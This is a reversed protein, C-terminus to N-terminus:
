YRIVDCPVYVLSSPIAASLSAVIVSLAQSGNNGQIKDVENKIPQYFLFFTGYSPVSGTITSGLIGRYLRHLKIKHGQAQSQVKFSDIGYFVVDTLSGAVIGSAAAGLDM